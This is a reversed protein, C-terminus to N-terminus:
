GRSAWGVSPPATSSRTRRQRAAYSAGTAVCYPSRQSMAASAATAHHNKGHVDNALAGGISVWRTGPTVPPFWASGDRDPRCVCALIEALSVGAQVELQGTRPNFAVFRDLGGTDLLLGGENLCFDGYSRGRGYALAPGAFARLAAM